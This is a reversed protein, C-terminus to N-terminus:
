TVARLQRIGSRVEVSQSDDAEDGGRVEVARADGYESDDESGADGLYGDDGDDEGEIAFGANRPFAVDDDPGDDMLPVSAFADHVSEPSEDPFYALRAEGGDELPTGASLGGGISGGAVPAPAPAPEIETGSSVWSLSLLFLFGLM